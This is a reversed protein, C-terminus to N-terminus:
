EHDMDPIMAQTRDLRKPNAKNPNHNLFAAALGIVTTTGPVAYFPPENAPNKAYPYTTSYHDLSVNEDYIVIVHRIPTTPKTSGISKIRPAPAPTQKSKTCLSGSVSTPSSVSCGAAILGVTIITATISFAKKYQHVL